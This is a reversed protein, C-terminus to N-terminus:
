TGATIAAEAQSDDILFSAEEADVLVPKANARIVAAVTANFTNAQTIVEDGPQIGLALLAITLADTGTNVGRVYKAGLYNAFGTEFHSVEETLIYHGTALMRGIEETILPLEDGFQSAFNYRKVKM